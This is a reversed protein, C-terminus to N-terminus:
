QAETAQYGAAVVADILAQAAVDGEVRAVGSNLDVSPVSNVGPVGSLAESVARVCHQCNMGTIKLQIM